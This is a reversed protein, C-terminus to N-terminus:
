LSVNSCFSLEWNWWIHSALNIRILLFCFSCFIYTSWLSVGRYNMSDFSQKCNLIYNFLWVCLSSGSVISIWYWNWNLCIYNLLPFTCLHTAFTTDLNWSLKITLSNLITTKCHCTQNQSSLVIKNLFVRQSM